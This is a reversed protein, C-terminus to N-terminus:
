VTRKGFSPFLHVVVFLIVKQESEQISFHTFPLFFFFYVSTYPTFFFNIPLFVSVRNYLAMRVERSCM